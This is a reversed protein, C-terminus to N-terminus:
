LKSEVYEAIALSSTLGPSEIGILNILGPYGHEEPGEIIFDSLNHEAHTRVRIGTYDASLCEPDFGKFYKQISNIFKERRSSSDDFLYNPKKIIEADPGFRLIGSIDSSTHIGLGDSEPLPYILHKFPNGSNYKYYHGKVFIPKLKHQVGLKTSINTSEYGASNILIDSKIQCSSPGGVEIKWGSKDQEGNLFPCDLIIHGGNDEIIAEHVTAYAHSDILGTSEIQLASYAILNPEIKNLQNKTLVKIEYIGNETGLEHLNNLYEMSNSDSVFILKGVKSYDVGYTDCFNYLTKNGNVCLQAKLSDNAYYIGSHMVESNHSSAHQIISKEKEIVIVDIGKKSLRSAISLGIIGGGIVVCETSIINQQNM